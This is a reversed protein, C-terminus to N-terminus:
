VFDDMIKESVSFMENYYFKLYGANDTYVIVYGSYFKVESGEIIQLKNLMDKYRIVM